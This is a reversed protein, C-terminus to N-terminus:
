LTSLNKSHESNTKTPDDEHSYDIQNEQRHAPLSNAFQQEADLDHAGVSIWAEAPNKSYADNYHVDELANRKNPGENAQCVDQHYEAFITAAHVVFQGVRNNHPCSLSNCIAFNLNCFAISSFYRPDRVTKCLVFWPETVKDSM